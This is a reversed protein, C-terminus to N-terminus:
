SDFDQDAHTGRQSPINPEGDGRQYLLLWADMRHAFFSPFFGGWADLWEHDENTAPDQIFEFNHKNNHMAPVSTPNHSNVGTFASPSRGLRPRDSFSSPSNKPSYYGPSFSVQEDPTKPQSGANHLSGFRRRSSIDTRDENTTRSRVRGNVNTSSEDEQGTAHYPNLDRHRGSDVTRSRHTTRPSSGPLYESESHKEMDSEPTVARITAWSDPYIRGQRDKSSSKKSSRRVPPNCIGQHTSNRRAGDQDM